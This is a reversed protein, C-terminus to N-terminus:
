PNVNCCQQLSLDFYAKALGVGAEFIQKAYAICENRAVEDNPHNAWCDCVMLRYNKDLDIILNHYEEIKENVCVLSYDLPPNCTPWRGYPYNIHTTFDPHQGPDHECYSVVLSLTSAEPLNSSINPTATISLALVLAIVIAIIGKFM